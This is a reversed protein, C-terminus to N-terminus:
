DALPYRPHGHSDRVLGGDLQLRDLWAFVSAKSWLDLVVIAAALALRTAIAGVGPRPAREVVQGGVAPGTEALPATSTMAAPAPPGSAESHRGSRRASASSATGRMPFSS